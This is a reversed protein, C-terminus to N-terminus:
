GRRHAVRLAQLMAQPPREDPNRWSPVIVIAADALAELGHEATVAIGATTRLAGTEGACVRLDFRAPVDPPQAGFVMSPVALHFLSIQDYAVVVVVPAPPESSATSDM